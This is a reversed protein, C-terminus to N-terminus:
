RSFLSNLNVKQCNIENGNRDVKSPQNPLKEVDKEFGDKKHNENM